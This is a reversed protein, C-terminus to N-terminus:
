ESQTCHPVLTALFALSQVVFLAKFYILLGLPFTIAPQQTDHFMGEREEEGGQGCKKKQGWFATNCRYM